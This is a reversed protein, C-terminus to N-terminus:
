SPIEGGNGSSRSPFRGELADQVIGKVEDSFEKKLIWQLFHPDDKALERLTKGKYKGFGITVDDGVWVLRGELDVANPDRPNYLTDLGDVEAPLDPYRDLQAELVRLAAEADEVAGHAGPFDQELYFKVAARLDRRERQHFIALADVIRADKLAFDMGARKFEAALMPVDFRIIGFGGLDCGELVAAIQRAVAKFIPKGAVDKDRIRHIATAEAPIPREPNVRWYHKELKGDPHVKIVALDILRETVANKGTAEIDLFAIPRDLKLRM